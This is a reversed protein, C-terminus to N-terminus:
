DLKLKDCDKMWGCRTIQTGNSGDGRSLVQLAIFGAVGVLMILAVFPGLLEPTISRYEVADPSAQPQPGYRIGNSTGVECGRHNIYCANNNMSASEGHEHDHDHSHTEGNDYNSYRPGRDGRVYRAMRRGEIYGPGPLFYSGHFQHPQNLRWNCAAKQDYRNDSLLASSLRPSLRDPRSLEAVDTDQYQGRELARHGGATEVAGDVIQRCRYCQHLTPFRGSAPTAGSQDVISGYSPPGPGPEPETPDSMYGFIRHTRHAHPSPLLPRTTEDEDKLPSRSHSPKESQAGSGKSKKDAPNHSDM